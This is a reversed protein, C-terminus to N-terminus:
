GSPAITTAKEEELEAMIREVEIKLGPQASGLLGFHRWTEGTNRVILELRRPFDPDLGKQYAFYACDQILLTVISFRELRYAEEENLSEIGDKRMKLSISPMYPSDVLLRQSQMQSERTTQYRQVLAIKRDEDLARTNAETAEKSHKVQLALYFLTVVVAIAGVFEGINGLMASVEIPSM